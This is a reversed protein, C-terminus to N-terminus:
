EVEYSVRVKYCFPSPKGQVLRPRYRWLRVDTMVQADLEPVAGKQLVVQEVRGEASICAQVQLRYTRGRVNLSRPLSRLAQHTCLYSAELATVAPPGAPPAPRPPAAVAMRTSPSPDDLTHDEDGDPIVAALAAPAPEERSVPVPEVPGRVVRRARRAHGQVSPVPPDAPAEPPPAAETPVSRVELETPSRDLAQAVPHHASWWLCGTVLAGHAGMSALGSISWRGDVEKHHAKQAGDDMSAGHCKAPRAASGSFHQGIEHRSVVHLDGSRGGFAM